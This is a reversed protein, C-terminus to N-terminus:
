GRTPPKPTARKKNVDGSVLANMKGDVEFALKTIADHIANLVKKEQETEIEQMARQVLNDTEWLSKVARQLLVGVGHGPFLEDIRRVINKKAENLSTEEKVVTEVLQRLQSHTLKIPKM